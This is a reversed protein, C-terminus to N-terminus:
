NLKDIRMKKKFEEEELLFKQSEQSLQKYLLIKKKNLESIKNRYEVIEERVDKPVKSLYSKYERELNEFYERDQLLYENSYIKDSFILLLIYIISITIRKKLFFLSWLKRKRVYQKIM